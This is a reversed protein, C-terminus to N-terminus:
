IRGDTDNAEAAEGTASPVDNEDELVEDVKLEPWQERLLRALHRIGWKECTRHGVCVVAMGRQRAAQLGLERVAGTLYLVQSCISNLSSSILEGAITEVQEVEAPHFANMITIVRIPTNIGEFAGFEVSNDVDMGLRKGLAVNNGVTLVEDFGKHNALVTARRPMRRRDLAWPRHLFALPTQLGPKGKAEHANAANGDETFHHHHDDDLAHYFGRTPTISLVVRSAPARNHLPDLFTFNKSSGRRIRPSHYAFAVDGNRVPFLAKIFSAVQAITPNPGPKHRHQHHSAHNAAPM